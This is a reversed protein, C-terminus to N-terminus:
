SPTSDDVTRRHMVEQAALVGALAEAVTPRDSPHDAWCRRMLLQVSEPMGSAVCLHVDPRTGDRHHAVVFDLPSIFKTKMDVFARELTWLEWIVIGLAFVDMKGPSDPHSAYEPNPMYGPTGRIGGSAAALPKAFEFDCIKVVPGAEEACCLLTSVMIMNHVHQM